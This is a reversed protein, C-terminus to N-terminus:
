SLAEISARAAINVGPMLLVINPYVPIGDLPLDSDHIHRLITGRLAALRRARFGGSLIVSIKRRSSNEKSFSLM